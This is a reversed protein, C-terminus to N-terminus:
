DQPSDKSVEVAVFNSEGIGSDRDTGVKNHIYSFFRAHRRSDTQAKTNEIFVDAPDDRLIESQWHQIQRNREGRLRKREFSDHRLYEKQEISEDQRLTLPLKSIEESKEKRKVRLKRMDQRLLITPSPDVKVIAEVEVNVALKTM